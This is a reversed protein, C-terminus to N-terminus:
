KRISRIIHRDLFEASTLTKVGMITKGYLHGFHCRDGTLLFEVHAAIASALIPRDKFDDLTLSDPLEVEAVPALETSRMLSEPVPVAGPRDMSLNRRAEALAYRSTLLVVRPLKWLSLLRSDPRYAASYLVNADLFVSEVLLSRSAKDRM